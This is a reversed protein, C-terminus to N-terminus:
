NCNRHYFARTIVVTGIVFVAVLGAARTLVGAPLLLAAHVRNAVSGSVLGDAYALIAIQAVWVSLTTRIKLFFYQLLSPSMYCKDKLNNLIDEGFLFILQIRFM